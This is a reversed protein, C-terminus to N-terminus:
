LKISEKIKEIRVPQGDVLYVTVQGYGIERLYKLLADEQKSIIVSVENSTLNKM